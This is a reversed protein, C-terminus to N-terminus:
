VAGSEILAFAFVFDAGTPSPGVGRAPSKVGAGAALSLGFRGQEESFIRRATRTPCGSGQWPVMARHTRRMKVAFCSRLAMIERRQKGKM